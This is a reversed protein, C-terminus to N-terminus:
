QSSQILPSLHDIVEQPTKYQGAIVKKLENAIVLNQKIFEKANAQYLSSVVTYYRIMDNKEYDKFTQLYADGEPVIQSNGFDIFKPVNQDLVINSAHADFHFIRYSHLIALSKAIYVLWRLAQQIDIQHRHEQIYDELSSGGDKM